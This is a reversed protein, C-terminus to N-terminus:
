DDDPNFVPNTRSLERMENIFPDTKKMFVEWKNNKEDRQWIESDEGPIYIKTHKKLIPFLPVRLDTFPIYIGKRSYLFTGTKPNIGYIPIDSAHTKIGTIDAVNKAGCKGFSCSLFSIQADESFSIKKLLKGLNFSQIEGSGPYNNPGKFSIADPSGHAEIGLFSLTYDKSIIINVVEELAMPSVISVSIIPIEPGVINRTYEKFKETALSFKPNYSIDFSNLILAIEKKVPENGSPDVYKLPNNQVYVYRNLSQPEEIKGNITDATTFRGIYSDYYRANYYLLGTNDIEKANYQYNNIENESIENLTKGFVDYDAKWVVSANEDTVAVPSGLADTHYYYTKYEVSSVFGISLFISIIIGIILLAKFNKMDLNNM